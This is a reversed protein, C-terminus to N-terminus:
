NIIKLVFNECIFNEGDRVFTKFEGNKVSALFIKKISEVNKLTTNELYLVNTSKNWRVTNEFENKGIKTNAQFVELSPILNRELRNFINRSIQRSKKICETGLRREVSECDSIEKGCRQCHTDSSYIKIESTQEGTKLYNIFDKFLNIEYYLFQNFSQISFNSLNILGSYKFHKLDKSIWLQVLNCFKTSRNLIKYHFTEGTKSSPRSITLIAKGAFTLLKLEEITDIQKMDIKQKSIIITLYQERNLM